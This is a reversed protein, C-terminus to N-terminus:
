ALVQSVAELSRRTGAVVDRTEEYEVGWHGAFDEALRPLLQHWAIMGEGVARYEPRGSEWRLDKLHLYLVRDRLVSYAAVPDERWRSFNAPDFNCGVNSLRVMDLLRRMQAATGTIGGHNEVAIKVRREAAYEGVQRLAAAVQRYTAETLAEYPAHGAFLRLISAELGGTIDVQCCALSIEERLAVRDEVTFDSTGAVVAISVGADLAARRRVSLEANTACPRVHYRSNKGRAVEVEVYRFGIEAATLFYASYELERFGWSACCLKQSPM